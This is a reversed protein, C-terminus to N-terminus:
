EENEQNVLKNFLSITKFIITLMMLFCGVSAAITVFSYSIPISTLQRNVNIISILIGYYVVFALFTIVLLNGAITVAQKAAPPLLDVFYSVGIHRDERTALSAGLYVVWVFLGQALDVSWNIPSGLYRSSAAIFVLVVIMIMIISALYEEAFRLAKIIRVILM